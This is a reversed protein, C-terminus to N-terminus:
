PIVVTQSASSLGNRPNRAFMYYTGSALNDFKGSAQWKCGKKTDATNLCYELSSYEDNIVRTLLNTDAKNIEKDGNVDALLLPDGTLKLTNDIHNNIINIDESTIKGDMNVDGLRANYSSLSISTDTVDINKFVMERDLTQNTAAKFLFNGIGQTSLFYLVGVTLLLALVVIQIITLTKKNNIKNAKKM